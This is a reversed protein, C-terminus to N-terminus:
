LLAKLLWIREDCNQHNELAPLVVNNYLEKWKGCKISELCKLYVIYLASAPSSPNKSINENRIYSDKGDALKILIDPPTNPNQSLVNLCVKNDFLKTLTEVSTHKNKAVHHCAQDYKSNSLQELIIPCTTDKALQIQHEVHLKLPELKENIM